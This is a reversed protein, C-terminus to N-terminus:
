TEITKLFIIVREIIVNIGDTQNIIQSFIDPEELLIFELQILAKKKFLDSNTILNIKSIDEIIEQKTTKINTGGM